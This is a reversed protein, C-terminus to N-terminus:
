KTSNVTKLGKSQDIFFQFNVPVKHMMGWVRVMILFFMDDAYTIGLNEFEQVIIPKEKPWELIDTKAGDHWWLYWSNRFFSGFKYHMYTAFEVAGTKNMSRIDAPIDADTLFDLADEAAEGISRPQTNFKVGEMTTTHNKLDM